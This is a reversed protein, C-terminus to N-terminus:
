KLSKAPTSKIYDLIKNFNEKYETHGHIGAHTRADINEIKKSTSITYVGIPDSQFLSAPAYLCKLVADEDSHCNFIRGKICSSVAEWKDNGVAGGLLYVDNIIVNDSQKLKKLLYYIIRAGLSHGMLVFGEKHDTSQLVYSLMDAVKETKNMASYWHHLPGSLISAGGAAATGVVSEAAAVSALGAPGALLGACLGMGGGVMSLGLAETLALRLAPVSFVTKFVSAVSSAEWNVLYHPNNKYKSESLAKHWDEANKEKESLFGNIFIIAPGKGDQIKIIDFNKLRGWITKAFYKTVAGTDKTCVNAKPDWLLDKYKTLDDIRVAHISLERQFEDDTPERGLRQALENEMSSILASIEEDTVDLNCKKHIRNEIRDLLDTDPETNAFVNVLASDAAVALGKRKEVKKKLAKLRGYKNNPLDM